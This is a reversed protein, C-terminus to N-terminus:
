ELNIELKTKTKLTSSKPIKSFPPKNELEPPINYKINMNANLVMRSNILRGSENDFLIIGTGTEEGKMEISTDNEKQNFDFQSKLNTSIRIKKTGDGDQFGLFKYDISVNMEGLNPLKIKKNTKWTDGENLEKKPFENQVEQFLKNLEQETSQGQLIDELGETKLIKGEKTYTITFSKNAIPGEQEKNGIKIKALEYTIQTTIDGNKKVDLTEQKFKTTFDVNTSVKAAGVTSLTNTKATMKYRLIEGKKSKYALKITNKCGTIMITSIVILCLILYIKYKKM